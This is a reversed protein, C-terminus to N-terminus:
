LRRRLGAPKKSRGCHLLILLGENEMVFVRDGRADAFLDSDKGNHM